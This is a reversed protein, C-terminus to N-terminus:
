EDEYRDGNEERVPNDISVHVRGLPGTLLTLQPLCLFKATVFVSEIFSSCNQLEGQEREPGCKMGHWRVIGASESRKRM